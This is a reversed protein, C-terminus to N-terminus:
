TWVTLHQCTVQSAFRRHWREHANNTRDTNQIIRERVIWLRHSFVPQRRQGNQGLCGIYYQVIYNLIPEVDETVSDELLAFYWALDGLSLFALALIMRVALAFDAGPRYREQKTNSKCTRSVNFFCGHANADPLKM